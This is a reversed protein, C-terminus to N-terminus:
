LKASVNAKKIKALDIEVMDNELKLILGRETVGELTGTWNARGNIADTRLKVTEGVFREFHRQTRLPRDIGPSSVELTYARPFPDTAEVLPDLWLNAAALADIGISGSEDALELYVRVVSQGGVTLLEVDVLQMNHELAAAELTEILENAKANRAMTAVKAGSKLSALVGLEVSLFMGTIFSLPTSDWKRFLFFGSLRALL